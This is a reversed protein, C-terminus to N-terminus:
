AFIRPLTVPSGIGTNGFYASGFGIIWPRGDVIRLFWEGPGAGMDGFAIGDKETSRSQSRGQTTM